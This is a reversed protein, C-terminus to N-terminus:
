NFGFIFLFFSQIQVEMGRYVAMAHMPVSERVTILILIIIIIIIITIIFILVLV